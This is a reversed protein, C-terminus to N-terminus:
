FFKMATIPNSGSTASQLIFLNERGESQDARWKAYAISVLLQRAVYDVPIADFTSDPNGPMDKMVGLGVALTMGSLLGETDTWGPIPESEAAAVISPRLFVMPIPRGRSGGRNVKDLLEEAMRKTYTYSDPFGKLMASGGTNLAHKSINLIKNYDKEWNIGGSQPYIVEEVYGTRDSNVFVTSVQM